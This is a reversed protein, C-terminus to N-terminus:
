ADRVQTNQGAAIRWRGEERTMVYVPRGEPVDHLPAGDLTVPRQRVNVVAVDPRLFTVHEVSYEATSTAMAGPLVRRTFANIQEWGTLRHGHATTWVADPALLAMFADPLEHQQAHQLDAVVQEIATRDATTDDTVTPTPATM